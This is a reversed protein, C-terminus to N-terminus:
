APLGLERAKAQLQVLISPYDPKAHAQAKAKLEAYLVPGWWARLYDDWRLPDYTLALHASACLPFGNRLDWRTGRYRRSFGHAAQLPGNCVHSPREVAQLTLTIHQGDRSKSFEHITLRCPGSARVAQSWAIDCKRATAAKKGKRQKRPRSTRKVPKRLKAERKPKPYRLTM